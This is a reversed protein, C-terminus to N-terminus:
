QLRSLFLQATGAARLRQYYDKIVPNHRTAAALTAMYLLERIKRALTDPSFPKAIQPEASETGTSFARM